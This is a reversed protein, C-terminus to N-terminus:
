KTREALLRELDEGVDHVSGADRPHPRYHLPLGRPVRDNLRECIWYGDWTVADSGYNALQLAVPVGPAVTECFEHAEVSARLLQAAASSMLEIDGVRMAEVHLRDRISEPAFLGIIRFAMHRAYDARASWRAGPAIIQQAMPLPFRQLQARDHKAKEIRAERRELVRCLREATENMDHGLNWARETLDHQQPKKM